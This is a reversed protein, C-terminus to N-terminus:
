VRWNEADDTYQAAPDITMISVNARSVRRRLTQESRCLENTELRLANVTRERILHAIAKSAKGKQQLLPNGHLSVVTANCPRALAECPVAGSFNNHGLYLHRLSVLNGLEPPLVGTLSNGGLHLRELSTLRGVCAPLPGELKNSRLSLSTLSSGLECLGKPLRGTFANEQLFLGKLRKLKSLGEPLKGELDNGALMLTELSALGGVADPLPGCLANHGLWLERLNACSWLTAPLPQCLLNTHLSLHWLTKQFNGPKFLSAPVAGFLSNSALTLGRLCPLAGLDAGPIPGTLQNEFLDVYTLSPIQGLGHPVPGGMGLRSLDLHRLSVAPHKRLPALM